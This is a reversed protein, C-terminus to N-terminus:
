GDLTESKVYQTAVLKIFTQCHLKGPNKEFNEITNGGPSNLFFWSYFM